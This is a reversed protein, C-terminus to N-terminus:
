RWLLAEPNDAIKNAAGKIAEEMNYTGAKIAAKIEQVKTSVVNTKAKPM